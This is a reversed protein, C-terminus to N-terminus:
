PSPQSNECLTSKSRSGCSMECYMLASSSLRNWVCRKTSTTRVTTNEDARASVCGSEFRMRM